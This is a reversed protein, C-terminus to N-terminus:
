RAGEKLYFDTHGFTEQGYHVVRLLDFRYATWILNWDDAWYVRQNEDVKVILTQVGVKIEIKM